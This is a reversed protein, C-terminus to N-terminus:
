AAQTKAVDPLYNFLTFGITFDLQEGFKRATAGTNTIPMKIPSNLEVNLGESSVTMLPIDVVVGKNDAVLTNYFGVDASNRVAAIAEVSTFYVDIDGGVEFTGPNVDFGGIVQLAMDRELNNNITITAESAFSFLESVNATAEDCLYLVSAEMDGTTSFAEGEIVPAISATVAESLLEDGAAVEFSKTPLFSLDMTVLGAEPFNFTLENGVAGVVYEAQLDTSATDPAGLQREFSLSNRVQLDDIENRLFDGFFIRVTEGGALTEDVMAGESLDFHLSNAEVSKVRKFGNNTTGVFRQATDDGGIFIWQGAVIGMTTLDAISTDLRPITAAQSIAAEDADLQFGVLAISGNTPTPEITLGAVSVTTAGTATVLKLGNNGPIDFGSALVLMDEAFITGDAVTYSAGTVASVAAATKERVNAFMFSELFDRSNEHTYDQAFGAQAAIDVVKGKRRQRDRNIPQRAVLTTSGGFSDYSNPEAFKWEPNAPLSGLQDPDEKAYLLSTENSSIKNRAVM